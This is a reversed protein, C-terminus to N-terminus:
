KDGVTLISDELFGTIEIGNISIKIKDVDSPGTLLREANTVGSNTPRQRDETYESTRKLNNDEHIFDPLNSVGGKVDFFFWCDGIPHCECDKYTLGLSKMVNQAHRYEGSLCAGYM